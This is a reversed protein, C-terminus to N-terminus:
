SQARELLAIVEDDKKSRQTQRYGDKLSFRYAALFGERTLTKVQEGVCDVTVVDRKPDCIGDRQLVDIEAFAIKDGRGNMCEHGAEDAVTYGLAAVVACLKPWDTNIWREEVLLDIDEPDTHPGILLSVGVSGYVIPEIGKSRLLRVIAACAGAADKM